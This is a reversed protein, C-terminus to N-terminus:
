SSSFPLHQDTFLSIQRHGANTANQLHNPMGKGTQWGGRVYNKSMYITSLWSADRAQTIEASQQIGSCGIYTVYEISVPGGIIEDREIKLSCNDDWKDRVNRAKRSLFCRISIEM